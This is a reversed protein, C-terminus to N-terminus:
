ARGKVANSMLKELIFSNYNEAEKSLRQAETELTAGSIAGIDVLNKGMAIFKGALEEEMNRVRQLDEKMGYFIEKLNNADDVTM